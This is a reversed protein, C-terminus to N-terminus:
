RIIELRHRPAPALVGSRLHPISPAPSPAASQVHGRAQEQGVPALALDDGPDVVVGPEAHLGSTPGPGCAPPDAQCERRGHGLVADGGFHEAVVALLEGPLNQHGGPASTSNSRVGASFPMVWRSVLGREGVVVPLISRSWRLLQLQLPGRERGTRWADVASQADEISAFPAHVNLLELQLTQHLREIKGTTTPSRPKTLRQTIGNERCIRELLVEAPRPKGFRGTFQKGNDSLVEAPIGYEAM